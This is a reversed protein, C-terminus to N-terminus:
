RDLAAIITPLYKRVQDRDSEKEAESLAQYPTDIQQQWQEALDPPIVLSGDHLRECNDHLHKQWHSWRAHEIDALKDIIGNLKAEIERGDM